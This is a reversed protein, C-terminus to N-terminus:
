VFRSMNESFFCIGLCIQQIVSPKKPGQKHSCLLYDECSVKIILKTFSAIKCWRHCRDSIPCVTGSELVQSKPCPVDSPSSHPSPNYFTFRRRRTEKTKGFEFLNIVLCSSRVAFLPLLPHISPHIASWMQVYTRVVYISIQPTKRAKAFHPALSTSVIGCNLLEM